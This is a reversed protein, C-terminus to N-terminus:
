AKTGHLIFVQNEARFIEPQRNSELQGLQVATVSYRWKWKKFVDTAGKVTDMTVGNLVVSGQPLISKKVQQLIAALRGGSGGIFVSHPRPLNKLAGPASGRMATVKVTRFKKINKELQTFRRADQEVAFVQMGPYLRAAEISVSGSGAGIDWLVRNNGCGLRALSLLRVDKKTIMGRDHHFQEDGIGLGGESPASDRAQQASIIMMTLAAFRCHQFIKLAGAIIREDRQGLNEFVRTKWQAACPEAKILWRAVAAPTNNDDCYIVAPGEAHFIKRMGAIDRGHLSIFSADEWREGARAFAGQFATINPVVCVREKGFVAIVLPSVGFFNPDGSALVVIKKGRSGTKLKRLTAEVNRDLVIKQAPHGPFYGLLRRGGALVDAATIIKQARVSLDEPSLGVGVVSIKEKM